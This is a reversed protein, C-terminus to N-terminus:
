HALVGSYTYAVSSSFIKGGAGSTDHAREWVTEPVVIDFTLCDETVLPDPEIIHQNILSADSSPSMNQLGIYASNLAELSLQGALYLASLNFWAPLKLPCIGTAQGDNIQRDVITVPTPAGFRPAIAYHINSFNFWGRSDNYTAQHIAYGLDVTPPEGTRSATVRLGLLVLVLLALNALYPNRNCLLLTDHINNKGFPIM